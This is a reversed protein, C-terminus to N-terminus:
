IDTEFIIFLLHHIVFKKNKRNHYSDFTFDNDVISHDIIKIL